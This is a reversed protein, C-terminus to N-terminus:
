QYTWVVISESKVVMVKTNKNLRWRCSCCCVCCCVQLMCLNQAWQMIPLFTRTKQGTSLLQYVPKTNSCSSRVPSCKNFYSSWSVSHTLTRAIHFRNKNKLYIIHHIKNSSEHILSDITSAGVVRVFVERKTGQKNKPLNTFAVGTDCWRILVRFSLWLIGFSISSWTRRSRSSGKIMMSTRRGFTTTWPAATHFSMSSIDHM